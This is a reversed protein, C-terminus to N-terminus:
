FYLANPKLDIIKILAEYIEILEITAMTLTAKEFTIKNERNFDM